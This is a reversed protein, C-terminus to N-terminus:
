EVLEEDYLEEDYSGEDYSEEDYSEEDYSEEDYSEEDEYVEEGDESVTADDESVTADDTTEETALESLGANFDYTGKELVYDITSGTGPDQMYVLTDDKYEVSFLVDKDSGEKLVEFGNKARKINFTQSITSTLTTTDVSTCVVKDDDTVKMTVMAMVEPYGFEAAYDAASKGNITKVKWDGGIKDYSIEGCAVLSLAALVTLMLLVLKKKM